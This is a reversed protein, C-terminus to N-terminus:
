CSEINIEGISEQIAINYCPVCLQWSSVMAGRVFSPSIEACYIPITCAEVGIGIGLLLRNFLLQKWTRCSASAISAIFTLIAATM